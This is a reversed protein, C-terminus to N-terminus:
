NPFWNLLNGLHGVLGAGGMVVAGWLVKQREELLALRTELPVKDEKIREVIEHQGERLQVLSEKIQQLCIEVTTLRHEHLQETM